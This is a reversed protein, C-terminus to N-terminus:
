KKKIPVYGTQEVLYQGQDSLIWNILRKTNETQNDLTIAYFTSTFPYTGDTITEKSPKVNDISLVKISGNQIMQTSYYLFSYGIANKYNKYDATKEIIGGMGDIIENKLPPILEEEGMIKHLITQSGSNEPRQFVKIPSNKGGVSKWNTIRGSYIGIIDKSSITDVSNQSNVFFVFAEKGIPTLKINVGKQQANKMQEKSPEACFIIDTKGDFLNEYAKQTTSCLVTSNTPDYDNVPYTANVFSSYLPYLATAGDIRPLQDNLRLSSVTSLKAIKSNNSFPLYDNIVVKTEKVIPISENYDKIVKNIVVSIILLLVVSVCILFLKLNSNIWSILIGIISLDLGIIIVTFFIGNGTFLSVIWLGFSFVVLLIGILFSIIMKVVQKNM